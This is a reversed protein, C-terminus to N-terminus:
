FVVKEFFIRIKKVAAARIGNKRRHIVMDEGSVTALPRRNSGRRISRKESTDSELIIKRRHDAFVTQCAFPQLIRQLEVCVCM